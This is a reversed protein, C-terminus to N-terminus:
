GHRKPAFFISWLFGSGWSLHMTAIALLLGPLLLPRSQRVAAHLGAAALVLLYLAIEALLVLGALPLFISIIGLALLSLVFLPPLAQRWRLSRPHQQLMKLKWFGYRWYQRALEPLTARAIYTSRIAPDLWIVGGAQRVRTFFEYDENTLLGEDFGGMQQFLSRRFAGFPVTDVPGEAAGLRYLADGVGLPHAAARAISEAVFGPGGPRIEWVGGVVSGKGVEIADVCCAVYEPVPICHADLRVLIEGCAAAAAANLGAPISRAANDKIHVPLDPHSAQFLAIVARTKDQSLGDAIIVEMQTRLYTQHLLAELLSGISAEENYCPVIISIAPPM